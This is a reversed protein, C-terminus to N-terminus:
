EDAANVWTVLDSNGEDVLERPQRYNSTLTASCHLRQWCPSCDDSRAVAIVDVAILTVEDNSM